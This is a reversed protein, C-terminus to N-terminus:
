SFIGAEEENGIETEEDPARRKQVVQLEFEGFEYISIGDFGIELVVM